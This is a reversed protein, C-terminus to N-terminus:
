GSRRACNPVRHLWLAWGGHVACRQWDPVGSLAGLLSAHEPAIVSDIRYNALVALATAPADRGDLALQANATEPRYCDNRLDFLVRVGRPHTYWIAQGGRRGPLYLRAGDPVGALLADVARATPELWQASSRTSYNFAFVLVGSALSLAPVLRWLLQRTSTQLQRGVKPMLPALLCCGVTIATPWYRVTFLGCFLLSFVLAGGARRPGRGIARVSLVGIAAASLRVSLPTFDAGGEWVAQFELIHRHIWGHMPSQGTVYGLVLGHLALGYPNILTLPVSLVATASRLRRQGSADIAGAALLAVGLPFTGHANTWVLMLVPAAAAHWRTFRPAYALVTMLAVLLLGVTSPRALFLFIGLGLLFIVCIGVMSAADRADRKLAYLVTAQALAANCLALGSSFAPGMATFGRAYLPGLLWEHMVWPQDGDAFSFMNTRPPLGHELTWRGAAALWWSDSDSNPVTAIGMLHGGLAIGPLLAVMWTPVPQALVRLVRARASSSASVADCRAHHGV